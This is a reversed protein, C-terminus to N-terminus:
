NLLDLTFGFIKLDLLNGGLYTISVQFQGGHSSRALSFYSRRQYTPTSNPHGLQVRMQVDTSDCDPYAPKGEKPM